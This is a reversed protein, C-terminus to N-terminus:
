SVICLEYYDAVGEPTAGAIAFHSDLLPDNIVM